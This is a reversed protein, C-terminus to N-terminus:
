GEHREAAGEIAADVDHERPIAVERRRAGDHGVAEYLTYIRRATRGRCSADVLDHHHNALVHEALDQRLCAADIEGFDLGGGMGVGPKGLEIQALPALDRALRVRRTGPVVM